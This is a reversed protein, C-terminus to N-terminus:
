DGAKVISLCPRGIVRLSLEDPTISDDFIGDNLVAHLARMRMVFARYLPVAESDGQHLEGLFADTIKGLELLAQAMPEVSAGLHARRMLQHHHAPAYADIVTQNVISESM